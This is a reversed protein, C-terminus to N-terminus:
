EFHQILTHIVEPSLWDSLPNEEAAGWAHRDLWSKTKVGLVKSSDPGPQRGLCVEGSGESVCNQLTALM